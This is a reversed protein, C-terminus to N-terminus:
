DSREALKKLGDEPEEIPFYELGIYGDFNTQDIERFINSYKIEGKDLEHRGPNGAAHFHGIKDINGIISSILNGEMIQQHYIDFLIKINPSGVEDVIEFAEDSSYLYYGKHNVLINLPEVVLTIDEKELIPASQKLGEVISKHQEKRSIETLENGVQSILRSCGLFKAKEVSEKLGEIYEQRKTEDVLSVFTTCFASLELGTEEKAKKIADLDKNWWAWFEFANIGTNKVSKMSEIFDRKNYVADICVSFKM